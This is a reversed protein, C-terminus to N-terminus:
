PLVSLCSVTPFVSVYSLSLVFFDLKTNPATLPIVIHLEYFIIGMKNEIIKLYFHFKYPFDQGDEGQKSHKPHRFKLLYSKWRVISYKNIQKNLVNIHWEDWQWIIKKYTTM